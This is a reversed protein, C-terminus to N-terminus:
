EAHEWRTWAGQRYMGIVKSQWDEEVEAQIEDQVMQERGRAKDYRPKLFSGLEALGVAINDVLISQQLQSEM